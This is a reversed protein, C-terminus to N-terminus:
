LYSGSSFRSGFQAARDLMEKKQTHGIKRGGAIDKERDFVRASPDDDKERPGAKKHEDYLSKSRNKAEYQDTFDQIMYFQTPGPRLSHIYCVNFERIRRATEEAEAASITQKGGKEELQTAPKKVGMVEDDLRKRREDPSETWLTNDAGPKQPAKSGKGTQFKRNRLKTPDVKSTWDESKPPVLMWEDRKPRGDDM